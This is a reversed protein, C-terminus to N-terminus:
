YISFCIYTETNVLDLLNQTAEIYEVEGEIVKDEDSSVIDLGSYPGLIVKNKSFDGNPVIIYVHQGVNYVAGTSYVTMTSSQYKAKYIGKALDEISVIEAEITVTQVNNNDNGRSVTNIAELLSAQLENMDKAEKKRM